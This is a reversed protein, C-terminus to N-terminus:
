NGLSLTSHRAPNTDAAPNPESDFSPAFSSSDLESAMAVFRWRSSTTSITRIPYSFKSCGVSHLKYPSCRNVPSSVALLRGSCLM